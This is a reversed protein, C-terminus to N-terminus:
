FRLYHCHYYHFVFTVEQKTSTIYIRAFAQPAKKAAIHFSSFLDLKSGNALDFFLGVQIDM